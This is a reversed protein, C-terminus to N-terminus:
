PGTADLGLDTSITKGKAEFVILASRIENRTKEDAVALLKSLAQRQHEGIDDWGVIADVIVTRKLPPSLVDWISLGIVARLSMVGAENPGTLNSLVLASFAKDIGEGNNLRTQALVAWEYTSAPTISLQDALAESLQEPASKQAIRAISERALAGIGQKQAFPALAALTKEPSALTNLSAFRILNVSNTVAIGAVLCMVVITVLRSSALNIM